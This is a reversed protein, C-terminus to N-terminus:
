EARLVVMPDVNTVRRAPWYAALMTISMIAVVVLAITVPDTPGIGYIEGKLSSGLSIWTLVGAVVGLITLRMTQMMVRLGVRKAEAGLAIRIAIERIRQNVIRVHSLASRGLM